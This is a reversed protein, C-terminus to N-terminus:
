PKHNLQGDVDGASENANGSGGDLPFRARRGNNRRSKTTRNKMNKTMTRLNM